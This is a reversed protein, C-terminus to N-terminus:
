ALCAFTILRTVPLDCDQKPGARRRGEQRFQEAPDHEKEGFYGPDLLNLLIPLSFLSVRFRQHEEMFYFLKLALDFAFGSAAVSPLSMSGTKRLLAADTKKEDLMKTMEDTFAAIKTAQEKSVGNIFNKM